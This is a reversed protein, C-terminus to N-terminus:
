NSVRAILFRSPGESCALKRIDCKGMQTVRASSFYLFGHGHVALLVEMSEYLAANRLLNVVDTVDEQKTPFRLAEELKSLMIQMADECDKAMNPCRQSVAEHQLAM